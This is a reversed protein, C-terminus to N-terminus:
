LLLYIFPSKGSFDPQSISIDSLNWVRNTDAPTNFPAAPTGGKVDTLELRGGFQNLYLGLPSLPESNLPFFNVSDQTVNFQGGFHTLAKSVGPTFLTISPSADTVGTFGTNVESLSQARETPTSADFHGPPINTNMNLEQSSHFVPRLEPSIADDPGM